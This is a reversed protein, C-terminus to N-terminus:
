VTQGAKEPLKPVVPYDVEMQGSDIKKLMSRHLRKRFASLYDIFLTGELHDFEHQIVRSVWGEATLKKSNFERDLYSVTVIDPRVIEDRLDPISLCGEEMKVKDGSLSEIKPNIMAIPGLDEEEDLESTIADADMVFLRISRGIQPAALGVGNSNYMTEFMDSILQQLEESNEKVPASAQRLVPDDYTVIPLVSM